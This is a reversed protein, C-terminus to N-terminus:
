MIQKIIPLKSKYPPYRLPVDPWTVKNVVGKYHTFTDFSFKGHYAGLGSNGVGGFPLNHNVVHSICDNVCGGGFPMNKILEQQTKYDNSFIYFALPKEFQQIINVSEDIDDVVLVPLIPGFIEDYMTPHSLSDIEILTPAIYRQSKDVDGGVIINGDKIMDALRDFHRDSIIRPFDPSEKPNTGYFERVTKAFATYFEDKIQKNLLLYDPAVCTQGANFFKGFAIRKAALAVDAKSDVICPSKGGLELTVPTLYEAAAKAVIKGVPVSGTFFIYDYRCALMEDNNSHEDLVTIYNEDFVQLIKQMVKYSHMSARPPKVVITNGAAMAGVMPVLTLQVPYNWAGIILAVGYPEAYIYNKSPFNAINDKVLQPTTWAKLHKIMFDIEDYVMAIESTYTEFASKKFDQYLANIIASENQKVADKFKKLQKLRFSVSKTQHSNFFVRQKDIISQISNAVTTATM